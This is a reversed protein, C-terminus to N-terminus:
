GMNGIIESVVSRIADTDNDGDAAMWCWGYGDQDWIAYYQTDAKMIQVTVDGILAILAMEGNVMGSVDGEGVGVLLGSGDEYTIRGLEAVGGSRIVSCVSPTKGSPTPIIHGLGNAVDAPSNVITVPGLNIEGVDEDDNHDHEDEGEVTSSEVPAPNMARQLCLVGALIISALVVIIVSLMFYFNFSKKRKMLEPVGKPHISIKLYQM